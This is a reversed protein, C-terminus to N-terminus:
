QGSPELLWGMAVSQDRDASNVFNAVFSVILSM